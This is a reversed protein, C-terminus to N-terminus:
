ICTSPLQLVHSIELILISLENIFKCALKLRVSHLSYLNLNFAHMLFKFTLFALFHLMGFHLCCGGGGSTNMLLLSTMEMKLILHMFIFKSLVGIASLVIQALTSCM